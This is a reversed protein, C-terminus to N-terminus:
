EEEEKEEERGTTWWGGSVMWWGDMQTGHGHGCVMERGCGKMMMMMTTGWKM